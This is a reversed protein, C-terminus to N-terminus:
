TKHNVHKEWIVRRRPIYIRRIQRTRNIKRVTGVKFFSFIYPDCMNKWANVNAPERPLQKFVLSHPRTNLCRRLSGALTKICHFLCTHNNNKCLKKGAELWFGVSFVAMKAVSTKELCFPALTLSRVDYCRWLTLIRAVNERVFVYVYQDNRAAVIEWTIGHLCILARKLYQWILVWKWVACSCPNENM